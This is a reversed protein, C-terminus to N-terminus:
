IILYVDHIYLYFFTPFLLKCKLKFFIVKDTQCVKHSSFIPTSRHIWWAFQYEISEVQTWEVFYFYNNGHAGDWYNCGIMFDM